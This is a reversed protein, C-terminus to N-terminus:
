LLLSGNHKSLGETVTAVRGHLRWAAGLSWWLRDSLRNSAGIDGRVFGMEAAGFEIRAPTHWFCLLDRCLLVVGLLVWAQPELAAEPPPAASVGYFAPPSLGAVSHMITAGPGSRTPIARFCTFM